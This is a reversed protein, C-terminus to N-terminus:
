RFALLIAYSCIQLLDKCYECKTTLWDVIADYEVKKEINVLSAGLNTCAQEAPAYNYKNSASIHIYCNLGTPCLLDNSTM